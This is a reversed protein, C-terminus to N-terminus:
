LYIQVDICDTAFSVINIDFTNQSRNTSSSVLWMHTPNSLNIVILKSKAIRFHVENMRLYPIQGCLNM